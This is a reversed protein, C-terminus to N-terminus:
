GGLAVVVHTNAELNDLRTRTGNGQIIELQQLRSENPFGFHVRSTNGSLYGSAAHIERQYVGTSTTLILRTGIAHPNHSNEHQIDITLHSGRCVQNEYLMAPALLNNVVIDLDGDNDMDAMSMGRGSALANLGWQPAPEFQQGAVNRFAQNEEVLEANPLHGFIDAAIMGNVVYLDLFGDSDLDGWQASWSWGTHHVGWRPAINQFQNGQPMQLVNTIKQVDNARLQQMLDDLIPQWVRMTAPDNQYPHMDTAYLETSGDNNIDGSAFSMTSMTTIAFPEFREWAQNRRMWYADPEAFDNGIAIEPLADGNLDGLYIALAQSREALHTGVFRGDQNEYYFVGAGGSLLYSADIREMEADYSATVMDLDGDADMDAMNLTYAAKRIGSLPAFAFNGDGTNRWLSPAARQSSFVIDQWGDADMDVILVARTKGPISLLQKRFQLSGTNWLISEQGDLNALVVDLLGDNNLDNIALGAGNSDFFRVPKQTVQTIHDLEHAIFTGSCASTIHPQVRYDLTAQAQLSGILLLMLWFSFSFHTRM